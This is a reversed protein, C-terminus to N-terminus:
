KKAITVNQTGVAKTGRKLTFTTTLLVKLAGKKRLRKGAANLTCRLTVKGAKKVRMTAACISTSARKGAAVVGTQTAAGPGSATFTTIIANGRVVARGVKLTPTRTTAAATPPAAAVDSGPARLTITKTEGLAIALASRFWIGSAADPVLCTASTVFDYVGAYLSRMAFAGTASIPSSALIAFPDTADKPLLYMCQPMTTGPAIVLTGEITGGAEMALNVGTAAAGSGVTTSVSSSLLSRTDSPGGCLQVWVTYPGPALGRVIWQGTSDTTAEGYPFGQGSSPHVWICLGNAAVGAPVSVTGALSSATGPFSSINRLAPTPGATFTSSTQPLLARDGCNVGSTYARVAFTGGDQLSSFVYRGGNSTTTIDEIVDGNMLGVCVGDNAGGTSITGYVAGSSEGLVNLVGYALTGSGVNLEESYRMAIPQRSCGLAQADGRLLMTGTSSTTLSFNGSGDAHGEAYVTANDPSVLSVCVNLPTYGAPVVVTGTVTGALAAGTSIGLAGAVVFLGLVCRGALLRLGPRLHM